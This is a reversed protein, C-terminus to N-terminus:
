KLLIFGIACSFSLKAKLYWYIKIILIFVSEILKKSYCQVIKSKGKNTCRGSEQLYFYDLRDRRAPIPHKEGVASPTTKLVVDILSLIWCCHSNYFSNENKIPSTKHRIM